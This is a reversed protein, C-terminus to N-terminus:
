KAITEQKLNISSSTKQGKVNAEFASMVAQEDSLGEEKKKEIQNMMRKFDKPIVKLFKQVFDDWHNLVYAANPSGTYQQHKRVMEKVEAIEEQESLTEFEIMEQNCLAKVEEEHEDCLLYAIGGSMGAAFNKGIDGLVVVRGGTMYECGHDGIGEVVAIAGSNRVCFREGARGNIYAEGGSAGYLAVNGVIV